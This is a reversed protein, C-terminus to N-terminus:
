RVLRVCKGLVIKYQKAGREYNWSRIIRSQKERFKKFQKGNVFLIYEYTFGSGANIFIECRALTATKAADKIEFTETGVLKFMWDRKIITEGDLRVVRRGTTTGHEFEVKHIQDCLPVEWTAVLDGSM